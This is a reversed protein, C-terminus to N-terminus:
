QTYTVTHTHATRIHIHTYMCQTHAHTHVTNTHASSSTRFFIVTAKILKQSRSLRLPISPHESCTQETSAFKPPFTNRVQWIAQVLDCRLFLICHDSAFCCGSPINWDSRFNVRSAGVLFPTYFILQLDFLFFFLFLDLTPLGTTHTYIYKLLGRM